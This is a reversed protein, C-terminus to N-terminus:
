DLPGRRGRKNYAEGIMNIIAPKNQLLFQTGTMTDIANLNFNVVLQDGSGMDEMPVITGGTDPVFLEPGREGVLSAQGVPPRGGDAFGLFSGISGFIDGFFSSGGGGGMSSFLNGLSGGISGLGDKIWNFIDGFISMLGDGMGSFVNGIGQAASTMYELMKSGASQISETMNSGTAAMGGSMIQAARGEGNTGIVENAMKSLADALPDALNQKVIRNAIDNLINTFFNKFAQLPSKAQVFAETFEKSFTTAAGRISNKIAENNDILRDRFTGYVSITREIEDTDGGLQGAAQRYVRAAVAGERFRKTLEELSQRRTEDSRVADQAAVVAGEVIAKYNFFEEGLSKIANALQRATIEGREFQTQLAAAITQNQSYVESGRKVEDVLVRQRDSASLLTEDISKVGRAYENLTITGAALAANYFELTQRQTDLSVRSEELRINFLGLGTASDALRAKNLALANSAELLENAFIKGLTESNKLAEARKRLNLNEKDLELNYERVVTAVNSYLNRQIQLDQEQQNLTAALEKRAQETAMVLNPLVDRGITEYNGKLAEWVQNYRVVDGANLARALEPELVRIAANADFIKKNLEGLADLTNSLPRNTASDAGAAANISSAAAPPVTTTGVVGSGTAVAVGPGPVAQPYIGPAAPLRGGGSTTAGGAGTVSPPPAMGLFEGVGNLFRAVRPFNDTVLRELKAAMTDIISVNFAKQFAIELGALAGVLLAIPSTVLALIGSGIATLIGTFGGLTAFLVGLRTALATIPGVTSAAGVAAVGTAAAAGAAGIGFLSRIFAAIPGRGTTIASSLNLLASGLRVILLTVVVDKILGFNDALLKLADAAITIARGLDGGFVRILDKNADIAAIAKDAIDILAQKLGGELLANTAEIIKNKLEGFAGGLSRASQQAQGGLEVSGIREIAKVAEATSSVIAVTQGAYKVAFRGTSAGFQNVIEDIKILDNTTRELAKLKEADNVNGLADAIDNISAGSVKAINAIATLRDVTPALGNNRLTVFAASIDYVDAGLSSALSGLDKFLQKTDTGAPTIARLQREIREISVGTEYLQRTVQASVMAALVAQARSAATQIGKLGSEIGRMSSKTQDVLKVVVDFSAM